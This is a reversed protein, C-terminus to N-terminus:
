DEYKSLNKKIIKSNKEIKATKPLLNLLEDPPFFDIEYGPFNLILVVGRVTQLFSHASIRVVRSWKKILGHLVVEKDINRSM